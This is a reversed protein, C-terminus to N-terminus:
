FSIVWSVEVTITPVLVLTDFNVYAVVPLFPVGVATADNTVLGAESLPVSTFTGYAIEGPEILYRFELQQPTPRVMITKPMTATSVWVDGGAGPYPTTGGSFRVPRELTSIPPEIPYEHNYEAGTTANPDAGAPYATDVAAIIPGVQKNGGIGVQLWKLHADSHPVDPDQSLLSIVQVLFARGNDTWVNHGEWQYVLKGRERAKIFVNPKM